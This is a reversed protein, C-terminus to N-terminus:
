LCPLGSMRSSHEHWWRTHKAPAMTLEAGGPSQQEEAKTTNSCDAPYQGQSQIEEDRPLLQGM